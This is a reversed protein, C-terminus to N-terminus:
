AGAIKVRHEVATYQCTSTTHWTQCIIYIIHIVSHVLGFFYISFYFILDIAWLTIFLKQVLYRTTLVSLGMLTALVSFFFPKYDVGRIWLCKRRCDRARATSLPISFCVAAEVCIGPWAFCSTLTYSEVDRKISIISLMKGTHGLWGAPRNYERM